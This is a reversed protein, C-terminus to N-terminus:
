LGRREHKLEEDRSLWIGSGLWYCFVMLHRRLAVLLNIPEQIFDEFKAGLITGGIEESGTGPIVLQAAFDLGLELSVVL